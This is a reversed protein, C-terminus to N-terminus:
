CGAFFAGLFDFFDQSNVGADHNFDASPAGQFFATLFAFFDQSNVVGDGTFDARCAPHGVILVATDDVTVIEPLSGDAADIHLAVVEGDHLPPTPIVFRDTPNSGNGISGFCVCLYRFDFCIGGNMRCSFCFQNCGSGGSMTLAFPVPEGVPTGGAFARVQCSVNGSVTGDGDIHLRGSIEGGTPTPTYVLDSAALSRNYAPAQALAGCALVLPLAASITTVLRM